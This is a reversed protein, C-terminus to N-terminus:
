RINVFRMIASCCGRNSSGSTAAHCSNEDAMAAAIVDGCGFELSPERGFAVFAEKEVEIRDVANRGSNIPFLCDVTVQPLALRKEDDECRVPKGGLPAEGFEGDGALLALRDEDGFCLRMLAARHNRRKLLHVERRIAVGSQDLQSTAQLLLTEIRAVGEVPVRLPRDIRAKAGEAFLVRRNEEAAALLAPAGDLRDLAQATLAAARGTQEQDGAGGAAALRGEHTGPGDWPEPLIRAM